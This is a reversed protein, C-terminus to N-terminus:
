SWKHGQSYIIRLSVCIFDDSGFSEDSDKQKTQYLLSKGVKKLCQIMIQHRTSLGLGKPYRFKLNQRKNICNIISHEEECIALKPHIWTVWDIESLFYVTLM